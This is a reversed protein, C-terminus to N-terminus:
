PHLAIWAIGCTSTGRGITCCLKPTEVEVLTARMVNKEFQAFCGNGNMSRFYMTQESTSFFVAAPLPSLIGRVWGLRVWALVIRSFRKMWMRGGPSGSTSTTVFTVACLSALWGLEVIESVEVKNCKKRQWWGWCMKCPYDGGNWDWATKM